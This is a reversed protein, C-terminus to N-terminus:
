DSLADVIEALLHTLYDYVAFAGARPDDLDILDMDDDIDLRTGLVLRLANIAGMWANLEAEELTTKTVSQEVTDVAALRSQLLEDHTLLHFEAEREEDNAYGPPFLRETGDTSGSILLDRLQTTLTAVLDREDDTLRLQFRGDRARQV